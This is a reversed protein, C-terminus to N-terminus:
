VDGQNRAHQGLVGMLSGTRIDMRTRLDSRVKEDVVAGAHDDPLCRFQAVVHLDILTDGQPGFGEFEVFMSMRDFANLAVRVDLIMHSNVWSSGDGYIPIDLNREACEIFTPAAKKEDPRQRPGYIDSPRVSLYKSGFEKHYMLGISEACHKSIMYINLWEGLLNPQIIFLSPNVRGWELVNITGIINVEAAERVRNFLTETGLLGACHFVVDFHCELPIDERIDAQIYEAKHRFSYLFGPDEADLITVQYGRRELNEVLHGGM